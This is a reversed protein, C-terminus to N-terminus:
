SGWYTWKFNRTGWSNDWAGDPLMFELHSRLSNAVIEKMEEDDTMHSYLALAPLSEEVNYGLDVPKCGKPSVFDHPREEGFILGNQKTFWARADQALERGRATYRADDFLEGLLVLAYTGTMPYNVNSAMGFRFNRYVFDGAKRLRAMWQDHVAKDLLHGHHQLAEGLAIAGFVSTNKWEGPEPRPSSNWAGDPRDCKISWGFLNLAAKLYKEEGTADAMYMFPYLTEWNRGHILGCAPCAIAGLRDLDVPNTVQLEVMADCWRTLLRKYLSVNSEHPRQEPKTPSSLAPMSAAGIGLIGLEKLFDRRSLKSTHYFPM